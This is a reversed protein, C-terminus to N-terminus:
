NATSVDGNPAIRLWGAAHMRVLKAALADAVKEPKITPVAFIVALDEFRHVVRGAYGHKKTAEQRQLFSWIAQGQTGESEGIVALLDAPKVKTATKM